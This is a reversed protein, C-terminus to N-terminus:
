DVMGTSLATGLLVGSDRIAALRDPQPRRAEGQEMLVLESGNEVHNVLEISHTSLIVQTGRGIALRVQDMFAALLRPHLHNEPEEIFVLESDPSRLAVLLVLFSKWGDAWDELWLENKGAGDRLSVFVQRRELAVHLRLGSGELANVQFVDRIDNFREENELKLKVLVQPLNMGDPRLREGPLDVSLFELKRGLESPNFAKLARWSRVATEFMTPSPPPALIGSGLLLPHRRTHFIPTLSPGLQYLKRDGKFSEFRVVDASGSVLTETTTDAKIAGTVGVGSLAVHYHYDDGAVELDLNRENRGWSLVGGFGQAGRERFRTDLSEDSGDGWCLDPFLTLVERLASKGSGNPGVLVTLPEFCLETHQLVKYGKVHLRELM